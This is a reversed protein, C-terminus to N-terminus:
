IFTSDGQYVNSRNTDDSDESDYDDDDYDDDDDDDDDDDGTYALMNTKGLISDKVINWLERKGRGSESSFALPKRDDVFINPILILYAVILCAFSLLRILIMSFSPREVIM